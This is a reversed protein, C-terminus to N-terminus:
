LPQSCEHNEEAVQTYDLQASIGLDELIGYYISINYGYTVDM